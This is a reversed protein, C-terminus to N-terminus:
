NNEQKGGEAPRKRHTLAAIPLAATIGIIINTTLYNLAYDIPRTKAMLELSENMAETLGYTEIMRKNEEMNMM